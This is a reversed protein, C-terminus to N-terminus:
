VNNDDPKQGEVKCPENGREDGREAATSEGSIHGGSDHVAPLKRGASENNVTNATRTDSSAISETELRRSSRRISYARVLDRIFTRIVPIAGLIITLTPEFVSWFVLLFADVVLWDAEQILFPLPGHRHV